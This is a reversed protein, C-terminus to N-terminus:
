RDKRLSRLFAKVLVFMLTGFIIVFWIASFSAWFTWLAGREFGAWDSVMLLLVPALALLFWKAENRNSRNLGKFREDATQGFGLEFLSRYQERALRSLQLRM